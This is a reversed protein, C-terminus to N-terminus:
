EKTKDNKLLFIISIFVGLNILLVIVGYPTKLFKAVTGLVPIKFIYVGLIDEDHLVWDDIKENYGNTRYERVGNVSTVSYVFHTIIMDEEDVITHFTIIDFEDIEDFNPKKVLILDVDVLKPDMSDTIVTYPKFGFIEVTKTPIFSEVSIYLVLLIVFLYFVFSKIREKFSNKTKKM